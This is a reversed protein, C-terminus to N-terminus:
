SAPTMRAYLTKYLSAPDRMFEAYEEKNMGLYERLDLGFGGESTHWRDVYDDVDEPSAKKELCLQIFTKAPTPDKERVVRTGTEGVEISLAREWYRISGEVALKEALMNDVEVAVAEGPASYEDPTEPLKQAEHAALYATWVEKTAHLSYGDPRQGWHREHETWQVLYAIPM